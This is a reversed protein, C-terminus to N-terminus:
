YQRVYVDYEYSFSQVDMAMSFADVYHGSLYPTQVTNGTVPRSTDAAYIALKFQIALLGGNPNDSSCGLRPIHHTM